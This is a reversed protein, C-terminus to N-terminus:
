REHKIVNRNWDCLNEAEWESNRVANVWSLRSKLRVVMIRNIKSLEQHTRDVLQIHQRSVLRM